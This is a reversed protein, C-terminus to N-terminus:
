IQSIPRCLMDSRSVVEVSQQPIEIMMRCATITLLHLRLIILFTAFISKTQVENEGTQYNNNLVTCYLNVARCFLHDQWESWWQTFPTTVFPAVQWDALPAMDVSPELNKLRDYSLANNLAGRFQVKGAFFPLPPVQGFGLQRAAVSPNYFEYSPADKGATFNIPLEKVRTL